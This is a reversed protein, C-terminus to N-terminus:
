PRTVWVLFFVIGFIMSGIAVVDGRFQARTKWKEARRNSRDLKEGAKTLENELEHVLDDDTDRRPQGAWFPAPRVVPLPETNAIGLAHLFGADFEWAKQDIM